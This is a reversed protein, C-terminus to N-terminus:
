CSCHRVSAAQLSQRRQRHPPPLQLSGEQPREPAEPVAYSLQHQAQSEQEQLHPGCDVGDARRCGGMREFSSHM